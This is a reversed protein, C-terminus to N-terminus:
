DFIEIIYKKRFLNKRTYISSLDVKLKRAAERKSRYIIIKNTEVNIIKVRKGKRNSVGSIKNFVYSKLENSEKLNYTIKYKDNGVKLSDLPFLSFYLEERYWGKNRKIINKVWSREYGLLKSAYSFSYCFHIYELNNEKKNSKIYIYVKNGVKERHKEIVEKHWVIGPRAILLKNLKPRYKFILYQEMICLFQTLSLGGPIKSIDLVIYLDVKIREKRNLCFERTSKNQGKAHCKVRMGLHNSQGIYCMDEPCNEVWIRYCGPVYKGSKRLSELNEIGAIKSFASVKDSRPIPLDVTIVTEVISICFNLHEQRISSNFCLVENIIKLNPNKLSKIFGLAKNHRKYIDNKM